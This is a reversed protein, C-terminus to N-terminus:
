QYLGDADDVIHQGCKLVTHPLKKNDENTTCSTQVTQQLKPAQTCPGLLKSSTKPQCALAHQEPKRRYTVARIMVQQIKTM